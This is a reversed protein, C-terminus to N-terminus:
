LPKKKGCEAATPFYNEAVAISITRESTEAQHVRKHPTDGEPSCHSVSIVTHWWGPPVVIMEGALQLTCQLAGSQQAEQWARSHSIQAGTSSSRGSTSSDNDTNKTDAIQQLHTLAAKFSLSPDALGLSSAWAPHVLLWCKAGALLMVAAHSNEPEVHMSSSTGDPGLLLWKWAYSLSNSAPDNLQQCGNNTLM